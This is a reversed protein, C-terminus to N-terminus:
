FLTPESAALGSQIPVVALSRASPFTRTATLHATAITTGSGSPNGHRKSTDNNILSTVQQVL